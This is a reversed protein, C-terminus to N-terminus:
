LNLFFASYTNLCKFYILSICEMQLPRLTDIRSIHFDVAGICIIYLIYVISEINSSSSPLWIPCPGGALLYAISIHPFYVIHIIHQEQVSTHQMNPDM